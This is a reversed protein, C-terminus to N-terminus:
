LPHASQNNPPGGVHTCRWVDGSCTHSCNACVLLVIKSCPKRAPQNHTEQSVIRSSSSPRSPSTGQLWLWAPPCPSACGPSQTFESKCSRAPRIGVKPLNLSPADSHRRGHAQGDAGHLQSCVCYQVQKHVVTAQVRRSREPRQHGQGDPGRGCRHALPLRHPRPNPCQQPRHPHPRHPAMGDWQQGRAM